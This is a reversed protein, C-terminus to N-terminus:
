YHRARIVKRVIQDETRQLLVTIWRGLSVRETVRFLGPILSATM